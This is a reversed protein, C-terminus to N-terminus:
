KGQVTREFCKRGILWFLALWVLAAVSGSMLSASDLLEPSYTVSGPIALLGNPLIGLVPVMMRPVLAGPYLFFTPLLVGVLFTGVYVVTSILMTLIMGLRQALLMAFPLQWLGGFWILAVAVLQQKLTPEVIFEMGAGVKLLVTGVITLVLLAVMAVAAYAMAVAMKADWVRGMNLPLTGITHYEKKRDRNVISAGLLAMMAPYVGTYWWNYSNVAFYNGMLFAAMLVSALPMLWSLKGVSSHKHKLAEAQILRKM